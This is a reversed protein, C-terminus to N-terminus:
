RASPPVKKIRRRLVLKDYLGPRVRDVLDIANERWGLVPRQAEGRLLRAVANAVIVPDSARGSSPPDMGHWGMTSRFPTDLLGPYVAVFRSAGAHEVDMVELFRAAAAKSAGYYSEFPVARRGAISLVGIFTGRRRRAAWYRSASVAASALAWFNVEFTDRASAVPIAEARGFVATGAAYVVSDVAAGAGDEARAYLAEWDASAFDISAHWGEFGPPPRRGLSSVRARAERLVRAVSRGVGGSAGIVITHRDLPM